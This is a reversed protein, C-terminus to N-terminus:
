ASPLRFARLYWLRNDPGVTRGVGSLSSEVAFPVPIRGDM